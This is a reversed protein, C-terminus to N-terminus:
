RAFELVPMTDTCRVHVGHVWAHQREPVAAGAEGRQQQLLPVSRTPPPLGLQTFPKDIFQVLRQFNLDEQQRCAVSVRARVLCQESILFADDFLSPLQVNRQM